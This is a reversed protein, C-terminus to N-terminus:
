KNENEEELVVDINDVQMVKNSKIRIKAFDNEEEDLVKAIKKRTSTNAFASLEKTRKSDPIFVGIPCYGNSFIRDVIENNKKASRLKAIRINIFEKMEDYYKHNPKLLNVQVFDIFEFLVENRLSRHNRVYQCPLLKLKIANLKQGTKKFFMLMAENSHIPLHHFVEDCISVLQIYVHNERKLDERGLYQLQSTYRQRGHSNEKPLNGHYNRQYELFLVSAWAIVAYILFGIGFGNSLVRLGTHEDIGLIIQATSFMLLAKGLARHLKRLRWMVVPNGIYGLRHQSAGHTFSGLTGQFSALVAFVFGCQGHVTTFHRDVKTVYPLIILPWTLFTAVLQLMVHYKIWHKWGRFYRAVIGGVFTLLAWVTTMLSGHLTRYLRNSSTSAKLCERTSFVTQSNTFNNNVCGVAPPLIALTNIKMPYKNTNKSDVSGIVTARFGKKLTGAGATCTSCGANKDGLQRALSLALKNGTADLRLARCHLKSSADPDQLVEFGSEYCKPVDVLCHVSHEGPHELTLLNTHDLLVGREICYSDMIYGVTCIQKSCIFVPSVIFIYPVIYLLLMVYYKKGHLINLMGM